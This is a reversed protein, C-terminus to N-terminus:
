YNNTKKDKSDKKKDKDETQHNTKHHSSKNQHTLAAFVSFGLAIVLALVVISALIKKM